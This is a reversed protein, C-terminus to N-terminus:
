NTNTPPEPCLVRMENGEKTQRVEDRWKYSDDMKWVPDVSVTLRWRCEKERAKTTIYMIQNTQNNKGYYMADESLDVADIEALVFGAGRCPDIIFDQLLLVRGSVVSLPKALNRRNHLRRPLM